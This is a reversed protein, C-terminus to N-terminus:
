EASKESPAGRVQVSASSLAYVCVCMRKGTFPSRADMSSYVQMMGPLVLGQAKKRIEYAYDSEVQAVGEQGVTKRISKKIAVEEGFLNELFCYAVYRRARINTLRMAAKVSSRGEGKIEAVGIGLFCARGQEESWFYPGVLSVLDQKAAWQELVDDEIAQPHTFFRITEEELKLSWKLAIAVQMKGQAIKQRRAIVRCGIPCGETRMRVVRATAKYRSNERNSSEVARMASLNGSLTKSVELEAKARAISLMEVCKEEWGAVSEGLPAFVSGVGVIEETTPNFEEMLGLKELDKRIEFVVSDESDAHSSLVVGGVVVTLLALYKFVMM